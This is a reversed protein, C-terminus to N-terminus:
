LRGRPIEEIKAPVEAPVVDAHYFLVVEPLKLVHVFQSNSTDTLYSDRLM